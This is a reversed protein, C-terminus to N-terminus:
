HLSVTQKEIRLNTVYDIFTINMEKKFLDCLYSKSIYIQNAVHSLNINETYHADIYRIASLMIKSPALIFTQMAQTNLLHGSLYNINIMEPMISPKHNPASHIYKNQIHCMKILILLTISLGFDRYLTIAPAHYIESVTSEIWDKECASIASFLAEIDSTPIHWFRKICSM